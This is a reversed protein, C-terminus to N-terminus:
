INSVSPRCALVLAYSATSWRALKEDPLSSIECDPISAGVEEKFNPYREVM